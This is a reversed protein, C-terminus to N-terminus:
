PRGEELKTEIRELTAEQRIIRKDIADVTKHVEKLDEKIETQGNIMGGVREVLVAHGVIEEHDDLAQDNRWGWAFTWSVAAVVWAAVVGAIAKLVL